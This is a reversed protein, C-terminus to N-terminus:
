VPCCLMYVCSVFLWAGLPIRVRSGLLLAASSWRRLAAVPVLLVVTNCDM